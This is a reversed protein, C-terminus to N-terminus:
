AKAAEAVPAPLILAWELNFTPTVQSLRQLDVPKAIYSQVGLERCEAVDREKQSVTLVVVPIDRTKEDGRIRRLVELGNVKPLNLDLLIVHPHDGDRNSYQGERFIYNMAEVGDRVVHVKNAFRASRFAELTMEVDYPNDEVLLIEVLRNFVVTSSHGNVAPAPAFLAAVSMELARALKSISELSLNRAAREIDSIYTRHLDAREALEEQTMGLQSRRSRVAAAFNNKVDTDSM